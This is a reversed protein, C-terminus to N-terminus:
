RIRPTAPDLEVFHVPAYELRLMETNTFGAIMILLSKSDTQEHTGSWRVNITCQSVPNEFLLIDVVIFPTNPFLKRKPQTEQQREHNERRPKKENTKQQTTTIEM